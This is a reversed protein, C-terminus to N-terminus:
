LGNAIINGYDSRYQQKRGATFQPSDQQAWFHLSALSVGAADFSRWKRECEGAKYKPSKASWNDWLALGVAGLTFLAMGTRVWADYDDLRWAALKGLADQARAAEDAVNLVPTPPVRAVTPAPEVLPPLWQPAFDPVGQALAEYAGVSRVSGPAVVYGGQGRVDIGPMPRNTHNRVPFGDDWRYYIHLGGTATRVMFESGCPGHEAQLTDLSEYGPSGRKNDVDLVWVNSKPGTALGINANPIKGWWYAIRDPDHTADLFGHGTAPVKDNPALPFVAYGSAALALAHDLFTM